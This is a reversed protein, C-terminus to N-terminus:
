GVQARLIGALHEADEQAGRIFASRQRYLWGRGILFLGPCSTVGREHRPHGADDLIPAKMWSALTSDFGTAWVITSVGAEALDLGAPSGPPEPFLTRPQAQDFLGGFKFLRSEVWDVFDQHARDGAALSAHLSDDLRVTTGSGDVARGLLTLGHSALERLDLDHGGEYGTLVPAVPHARMAAPADDITKEYYGGLELWWYYDRGRYRRPVRRHSGVALYVDRGGRLLDEAIQQGSPGAGVVLVGGSPLADARRYQSSHLQTVEGSLAHSWAPLRPQQYPGSAAVVCRASLVGEDTTVRYRGAGDLEVSSVTTRDRVPAGFSRAYAEFYEVIQDKVMFGDPDPGTYHWGPLWTAWNPTLLCFSDWRENKWRSAVAGKDLVVHEVGLATLEHSMALGAHGAGVVVTDVREVINGRQRGTFATWRRGASLSRCRQQLPKGFDRARIM